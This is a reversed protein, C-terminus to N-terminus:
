EGQTWEIMHEDEHRDLLPPTDLTLLTLDDRETMAHWAMWAQREIDKHANSERVIVVTGSPISDVQQLVTSFDFHFVELVPAWRDDLLRSCHKLCDDLELNPASILSICM